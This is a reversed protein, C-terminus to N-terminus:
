QCVFCVGLSLFCVRVPVSFLRMSMCFVRESVCQVCETVYLFKSECAFLVCEMHCFVSYVSEIACLVSVLLSFFVRVLLCM